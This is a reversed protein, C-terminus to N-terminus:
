SLYRRRKNRNLGLGCEPCQYYRTQKECAMASKETLINTNNNNAAFMQNIPRKFYGSDLDSNKFPSM